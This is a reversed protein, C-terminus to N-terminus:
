IITTSYIERNEQILPRLYKLQGGVYTLIYQFHVSSNRSILKLADRNKSTIKPLHFKYTQKKLFDSILEDTDRGINFGSDLIDFLANFRQHLIYLQGNNVPIENKGLKKTNDPNIASIHPNSSFMTDFDQYQKGEEIQNM